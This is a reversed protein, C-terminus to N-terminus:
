FLGITKKFINLAGNVDRNLTLTCNHCCFYKKAGLTRNIEGCQSCTISTMRECQVILECDEGKSRHELKNRFTCHSLISGIRKLTKPLCKGNSLKRNTSAISMNGLVVLENEEVLTRVLQQHVGKVADKVRACLKQLSRSLSHKQESLGRYRKSGEISTGISKIVANLKTSIAEYNTFYNNYRLKSTQEQKDFVEWCEGTTANFATLFSRLGPDLSTVHHLKNKFNKRIHKSDCPIQLVFKGTKATKVIKCDHPLYPGYLKVNGKRTIWDTWPLQDSKYKSMTVSGGLVEPILKLKKEDGDKKHKRIYLRQVGFSGGFRTDLTKYKYDRKGYPVYSSVFQKVACIKVQSSIIGKTFYWEDSEGYLYTLTDRKRLPFQGPGAIYPRDGPSIKSLNQCSVIKNLEMNNPYGTKTVCKGNSVLWLCWNYAHNNVKIQLNMAARIRENRVLGVSMTSLANASNHAKFIHGRKGNDQLKRKKAPPPSSEQEHQEQMRKVESAVFLPKQKIVLPISRRLLIDDRHPTNDSPNYYTLQKLTNPTLYDWLTLPKLRKM